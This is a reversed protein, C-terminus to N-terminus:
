RNEFRPADDSYRQLMLIMYYLINVDYEIKLSVFPILSMIVM